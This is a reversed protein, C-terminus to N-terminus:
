PEHCVLRKARLDDILAIVDSEVEGPDAEYHRALDACIDAVTAQGDCRSLVAHASEDLVIIREPALLVWAQRTADRRLRTGPALRPRSSPVLAPVANM